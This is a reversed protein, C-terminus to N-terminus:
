QGNLSNKLLAMRDELKFLKEFSEPVKTVSAKIKEPTHLFTSLAEIFESASEVHTIGHLEPILLAQIKLTIVPKMFHLAELVKMNIGTGFVMPNVIVHQNAYFSSVDHVFGLGNIGLNPKSYANSNKGAINFQATPFTSHITPWVERLFWELGKRNPYWSLDGIFGIFYPPKILCTAPEPAGFHPYFIESHQNLGKFYGQEVSSISLLHHVKKILKEELSKMKRAIQQYIMAKFFTTNQAKFEWHQFEINHARYIIKKSSFWSPPILALAYFGDCIVTDFSSQHSLEQFFRANTKKQYRLVNLPTSGMAKLFDNLSLKASIFLPRYSVSSAFSEPPNSPHDQTSIPVYVLHKHTSKILAELFMSMALSGGDKIPFVPKHTIYILSNV